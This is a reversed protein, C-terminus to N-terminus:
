QELERIREKLRNKKNNLEETMKIIASYQKANEFAISAHSLLLNLIEQRKPSFAKYTLNSELYLIGILKGLRLIPICFVSKPQHTSIYDDLIFIGENSPADLLTFKRTRIVYNIVGSSLCDCEDFPVQCGIVQKESNLDGTAVVQLQGDTELLLAGKEGGGNELLIKLTKKSLKELLLESSIDQIISFLERENFSISATERVVSKKSKQIRSKYSEKMLLVEYKEELHKIKATAGWKAYALLAAKIYATAITKKNRNLFYRAALENAIGENQIFNNEQSIEIAEDFLNITEIFNGSIGAMQASVITYKDLYNQPCSDALKKLRQHNNKLIDWYVKKKEETFDLYNVMIILSYYFYHEPVSLQSYGAILKDSEKILQLAKKHESFHFHVIANVLYFWQIPVSSKGKKIEELLVTTDIKNDIFSAKHDPLKRLLTIMNSIKIINNLSKDNLQDVFDQHKKVEIEVEELPTGVIIHTKMLFNISYAAMVLNGYQVGSQYGKSLHRLSKESGDKLHCIYSGFLFNIASDFKKNDIKYQLDLALRGIKYGKDYEEMGSCLLVAYHMYGFPSCPANGYEISLEVMKVTLLVWLNRKALYAAPIINAILRILGLYEPDNMKPLFLLNNIQNQDLRNHLEQMKIHSIITIEADNPPIKDSFLQNIATVGIDIAEKLKANKIYLNLKVNYVEVKEAKTKVHSLLLDFIPEAAVDNGCYYESESRKLYLNKTLEYDLDWSEDSLLDTGVAFYKWASEYASSSNSYEGAILNLQALKHKDDINLILSIGQNMHNVIHFINKELDEKSTNKHILQGLTLHNKKKEKSDILTYAAYFVRSHLFQFTETPTGGERLYYGSQDAKNKDKKITLILGSKLVEELLELTKEISMGLAQSLLGLEFQNGICSAMKMVNQCEPSLDLIKETMLEVLNQESIKTSQIDDLNWVWRGVEPSFQILKKEYLSKLLQKAFLPNGATRDLIHQSLSSYDQKFSFAEEIMKSISHFNLPKSAITQIEVGAKKVEELAIDLTNSHVVSGDRYAAIIFLNKSNLDTLVAQILQISATDAWQFGDLSIVLPTNRITFAHIFRRFTHNIRNIAEEPDLDPLEPQSGILYEIEPIFDIIIQGNGGLTDSFRQTWEKITDQDKTLIHRIITRFATILSYYPTDKYQREFQGRVIFGGKKNVHTQLEHVLSSKGMGAAGRIVALQVSGECVRNFSEILQIVNEHTGYLKSPIQFREIVDKQALKFVALPKGESYMQFCKELDYLIGQPSQYRDELSKALLKKLIQNLIDPIGKIAPPIQAIHSKIRDSKRDSLFPPTGSLLHYFVVGLSYLDSRQDVHLNLRGTKEPSAYLYAEDSQFIYSLSQSSTDNVRATDFGILDVAGSEYLLINNPKLDNHLLDNQHLEKLKQTISCAYKFFLDIGAVETKLISSLFSMDAGDVVVGVRNQIVKLVPQKHLIPTLLEISQSFQSQIESIKKPSFTERYLKIILPHNNSVKNASYLITQEFEQLQKVNNFDTFVIM